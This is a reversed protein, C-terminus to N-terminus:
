KMTRKKMFIPGYKEALLVLLEITHKDVVHNLFATLRETRHNADSEFVLDALDECTECEPITKIKAAQRLATLERDFLKNIKALRLEPDPTKLLDLREEYTFQPSYACLDALKGPTEASKLLDIIEMPIEPILKVFEGLQGLVALMVEPKDGIHALAEETETFRIRTYESGNIVQEIHVRWLGKLRM